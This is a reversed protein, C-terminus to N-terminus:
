RLLLELFKDGEFIMLQSSEICKVSASRFGKDFLAMEGFMDGKELTALENENGDVDNKYFKLKGSRCYRGRSL